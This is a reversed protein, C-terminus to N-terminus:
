GSRWWPLGLFTELYLKLPIEDHKGPKGRKQQPSRKKRPRKSTDAVEVLTIRPLKRTVLLKKKKVEKLLQPLLECVM